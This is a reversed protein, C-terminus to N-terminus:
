AELLAIDFATDTTDLHGYLDFTTKVSSHGMVMSLTELRGGARLYRTAFTHRTMHPNRKRVGAEERCRKWWEM